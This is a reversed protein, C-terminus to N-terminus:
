DIEARRDSWRGTAIPTLRLGDGYQYAWARWGSRTDIAIRRYRGAVSSEEADLAALAEDLMEVRLRFTRGLITGDGGFVAAPYGLGTDYLQGDTSDQVGGDAAFPALIPWRVDGPALTGYVFLHLVTPSPAPSQPDTV